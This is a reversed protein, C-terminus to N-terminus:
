GPRPAQIQRSVLPSPFRSRDSNTEFSLWSKGSRLAPPDVIRAIDPQGGLGFADNAERKLPEILRPFGTHFKRERCSKRFGGAELLDLAETVVQSGVRHIEAARCALMGILVPFRHARHDGSEIAPAFAVSLRRPRRRAKRLPNARGRITRASPIQHRGAIVEEDRVCAGRPLGAKGGAVDLDETQGVARHDARFRVRALEALDPELVNAFAQASMASLVPRIEDKLFIRIEFTSM